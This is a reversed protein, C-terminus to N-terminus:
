RARSSARSSAPASRSSPSRPRSSRRRVRRLGAGARLDPQHLRLDPRLQPVQVRDRGQGRRRHRRRRLHDSACPWRAGHQGEQGHRRVAQAPDQRGRDLRHVVAQACYRQQDARRRGGQRRRHRRQLRGQPHRRAGRARGAGPRFLAHLERAQGRGHLRCRAGARMQAHDHRESFELAHDRRVGRGAAQLGDPAPERGRDPHHRRLDAEGGRRVVRRLAAGYAIEGRSEALPKGQERTMIIALDEQNAMMLDFWKRLIKAREKATTKSWARFAREAAEIARRTEAAGVKPVTGIVEGSAPDTVESSARSDADVWAGDIYCQERFLGPDSLQIRFDKLATAM